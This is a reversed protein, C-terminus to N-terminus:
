VVGEVDRTANRGKHCRCLSGDSPMCLPLYVQTTHDSLAAFKVDDLTGARRKVPVSYEWSRCELRQRIRPSYGSLKRSDWSGPSGPRVLAV